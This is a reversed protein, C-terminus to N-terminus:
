IIGRSKAGFLFLSWGFTSWVYSTGNGSCGDVNDFLSHNDIEEYQLDKCERQCLYLKEQPYIAYPLYKLLIVQIKIPEFFFLSYAM